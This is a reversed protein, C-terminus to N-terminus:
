CYYCPACTEVAGWGQPLTECILFSNSVVLLLTQLLPLLMDQMLVEQLLRASKLLQPLMEQLLRLRSRASLIQLQLLKVLGWM